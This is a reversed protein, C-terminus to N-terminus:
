VGHLRTLGRRGRAAPARMGPRDAPPAPRAPEDAIVRGDGGARPASSHDGFRTALGAVIERDLKATSSDAPGLRGPHGRGERMEPHRDYALGRREDRRPVTWGRVTGPAPATGKVLLDGMDAM